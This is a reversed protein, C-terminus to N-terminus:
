LLVLPTKTTCPQYCEDLMRLAKADLRLDLAIRNQLIHDPRAAKPISVVRGNRITWALAVAAPPAGIAQAIDCLRAQELLSAKHVPSYAMLPINRRNLWPQLDFEPGRTTLNYAVQNAACDDVGASMLAEMDSVDFNSVGWHRIKGDERLRVMGEVIETLPSRDRWHLLYLDIRDTKLRRLSAECAAQIRERGANQPAVKSVIFLDDRRDSL